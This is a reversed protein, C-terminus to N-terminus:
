EFLEKLLAILMIILASTFLLALITIICLVGLTASDM